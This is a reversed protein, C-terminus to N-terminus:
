RRLKLTVKNTRGIHEVDVIGREKLNTVLRSVKAKSFDSERVLVKQIAQGNHQTLIEVIRKEDEKLLPMVVKVSSEKHLRSVYGVAIVVILVVAVIVMMAVDYFSEAGLPMKYTISFKLDDGAKINEKEWYVMIHKGDSLIKGYRPTYSENSINTKLTATEPLYIIAFAREVPFDVLYTSEFEYYEGRKRINDRTEFKLQVQTKNVDETNFLDCSITTGEKGGKTECNVNGYKSEAELGYIEYGTRYDLHSIQADFILVISNKTIRGEDLRAEIGYYELTQAGVLPVVCIFLFLALVVVKQTM